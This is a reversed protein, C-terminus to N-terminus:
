LWRPQQWQHGRHYKYKDAGFDDLWEGKRLERRM